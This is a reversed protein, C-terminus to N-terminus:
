SRRKGNVTLSVGSYDRTQLEGNTQWCVCWQQHGDSKMEAPYMRSLGQGELTDHFMYVVAPHVYYFLM